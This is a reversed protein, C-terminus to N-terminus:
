GAKGCDGGAAGAGREAADSGVAAMSSSSYPSILMSVPRSLTGVAGRARVAVGGGPEPRMLLGDMGATGAACGVGGGGAEVVDGPIRGESIGPIRGPAIGGARGPVTGTRGTAPAGIGAEAGGRGVACGIPRVSIPTGAAFMGIGPTMRGLMGLMGLM